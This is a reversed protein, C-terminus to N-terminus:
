RAFEEASVTRVQLNGNRVKYLTISYGSIRSGDVRFDFTDSAKSYSTSPGFLYSDGYWKDGSAYLVEYKGIPVDFELPSGGRVFVTLCPKNTAVNILKVLYNSGVSTVIAFPAIAQRSDYVRKQGHSPMPQEPISVDPARFATASGKPLPADPYHQVPTANHQPALQQAANRNSAVSVPAPTHQQVPSPQSVPHRTWTSAGHKENYKYAVAFVAISALTCICYISMRVQWSIAAASPTKDSCAGAFYNNELFYDIDEEEFAKRAGEDCAKLTGLFKNVDEISSLSLRRSESEFHLEITSSCYTGNRYNHTTSINKLDWLPRFSVIDFSTEIFYLATVYFYSHLTVRLSQILTSANASLLLGAVLSIGCYWYGEERWRSEQAQYALFGFWAIVTIIYFYNALYSSTKLRFQGQVEGAQMQILIAQTTRPLDNFNVTSKHLPQPDGSEHTKQTGPASDPRSDNNGPNGTVTARDYLKRHDPDYLVHYAENLEALMDNAQAWELPQTSKDFRDPHVVRTRSIYARRISERSASRDVGLVSYFDRTANM